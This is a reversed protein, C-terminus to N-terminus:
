YPDLQRKLQRCKLKSALRELSFWSAARLIVFRNRGQLNARHRRLSISKCLDSENANCHRLDPVMAQQDAMCILRKVPTNHIQM